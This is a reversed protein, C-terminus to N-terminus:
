GQERLLAQVDDPEALWSSFATACGTAVSFKLSERNNYGSERAALFGALMTDGAGVSGVLRGKFSTQIYSEGEGSVFVAGNEGCSCLVSLAGMEILKESYKVCDGLTKIQVGFLEGLEFNNPKVLSPTYNLATKLNEGSMDVVLKVGNEGAVTLIHELFKEDDCRPIGGSVVLIDNKNMMGIKTLLIDCEAMTIRPGSTNIETEKEARIKVNTRTEGYTLHLFDTVCGLATVAKQLKEGTHGGVVGIARNKIGFRKLMLSVNIGKGGPLYEETVARNTEGIKLSGLTLVYDLSPNLTLTHIM